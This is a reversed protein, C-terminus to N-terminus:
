MLMLCGSSAGIARRLPGTERVSRLGRASCSLGIACLLLNILGLIGPSLDNALSRARASHESLFMIALAAFWMGTSVTIMPLGIRMQFLDEACLPRGDFIQAM